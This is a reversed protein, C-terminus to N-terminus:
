TGPPCVSGPADPISRVIVDVPGVLARIASPEFSLFRRGASEHTGDIVAVQIAGVFPIEDGERLSFSVPGTLAPCVPQGSAGAAEVQQLALRSTATLEIVPPVPTDPEPIRGAAGERALWGATAQPQFGNNDQLPRLYGPVDDIYPSHAVAYAFQPDTLSVLATESLLDFNRPAGIALPVLAVAGVVARRRALEEAGAAVLPLVLAAGVYVLRGGVPFASIRERAVATMGAFTLWSVCLGVPLAAGAWMGSRRARVVAAALGVAGVALLVSGAVPGQGLADFAAWLLRRFYPVVDGTLQSPLASERGFAVYWPLYIAGLPVAYFATVRVGRRLLTAVGFGVLMAVFVSSTMLGVVGVGLALWDRRTVARAGDALLFMGFGCILSGTLSIQFGLTINEHGAGFFLFALATATAILGRAGVRLCVQRLLVATALHGLVAPVQYPLYSRLGWLAYNLRYDLRLLTIWHGNHGDLYGTRALGDAGLITWEDLFFWHHRGYWLILPLTAVVAVAFVWASWRDGIGAHRGRTAEAPRADVVLTAQDTM